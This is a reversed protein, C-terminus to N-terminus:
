LKKFVKFRYYGNTDKELLMGIEGSKMDQKGKKPCWDSNCLYHDDFLHEIHAMTYKVLWDLGKERNQKIYYSYYKKMHLADMKTARTPSVKGKTMEFFAGAVCKARHTPDAYWKPVYLHSPLSGGINKKGTPLYKPHQLYTRMKTDDDSVVYDIYIIGEYKKHLEELILLLGDSEM